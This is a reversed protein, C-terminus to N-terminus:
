SVNGSEFEAIFTRDNIGCFNSTLLNKTYNAMFIIDMCTDPIVLTNEANQAILETTGWFCRIYPKLASCPEFERYLANKKLPTSTIPYYLKNLEM